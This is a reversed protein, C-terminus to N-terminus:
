AKEKKKTMAAPVLGQAKLDTMAADISRRTTFCARARDRQEQTPWTAPAGLAAPSKVYRWDAATPRKGEAYQFSYAPSWPDTSTDLFDKARTKM